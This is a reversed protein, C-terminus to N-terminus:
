IPGFVPITQRCVCPIRGDSVHGCAAQWGAHFGETVSMGEHQQGALLFTRMQGAYSIYDELAGMERNLLTKQPSCFDGFPLLITIHGRNGAVSQSCWWRPEGIRRSM